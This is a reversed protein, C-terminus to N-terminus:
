TLIPEHQALFHVVTLGQRASPQRLQLLGGYGGGGGGGGM